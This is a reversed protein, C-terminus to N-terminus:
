YPGNIYIVGSPHPVYGMVEEATGYFEDPRDCIRVRKERLGELEEKLEAINVIGNIPAYFARNRTLDSEEVLLLIDHIDTANWSKRETYSYAMAREILEDDVIGAIPFGPHGLVLNMNTNPPYSAAQRQFSDLDTFIEDETSGAAAWFRTHVLVEGDREIADGLIQLFEPHATSYRKIGKFLAADGKHSYRIGSNNLDFKWESRAFFGQIWQKIKQM